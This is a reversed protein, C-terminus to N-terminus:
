ATRKQKRHIEEMFLVGHIQNTITLPIKGIIKRFPYLLKILSAVLPSYQIHLHVYAKKFGFKKERFEQFNTQHYVNRTGGYLYKGEEIDKRFYEYVFFMIAQNVRKKEFRPDSKLTILDIYSAKKKVRYYAAMERTEKDFAAFVTDKWKKVEECFHQQSENFKGTNNYEKWSAKHVHFMQEGHLAVDIIAVDFNNIAQNLKTRYRSKIEDIEFPKDLICYWWGTEYECAFHTTWCAFLPRNPKFMKWFSKDKLVEIDPEEHPACNPLVAHNYYRWKLEKPDTKM